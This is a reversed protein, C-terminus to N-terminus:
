VGGSPNPNPYRAPRSLGGRASRGLFAEYYATTGCSTVIGRTSARLHWDEHLPRHGLVNIPRRVARAPRRFAMSAGQSVWAVPIQRRSRLAESVRRARAFGVGVATLTRKSQSLALRAYRRHCWRIPLGNTQSECYTRIPVIRVYSFMFPMFLSNPSSEFRTM